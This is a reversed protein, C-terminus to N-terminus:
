SRAARLFQELVPGATRSGSEGVDVFVAVALDGQSAIMWAHTKPPDADGFEATGTKALVQKGPIDSLGRGSGEQVVAAM